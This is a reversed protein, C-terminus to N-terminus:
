RYKFYIKEELADCRWRLFLNYYINNVEIPFIVFVCSIFMRPLFRLKYNKTARDSMKVM